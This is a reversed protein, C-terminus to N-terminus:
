WRLVHIKMGKPSRMGAQAFFVAVGLGLQGFPQAHELLGDM